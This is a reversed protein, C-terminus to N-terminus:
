HVMESPEEPKFENKNNTAISVVPTGALKIEADRVARDILVNLEDDTPEGALVLERTPRVMGEASDNVVPQKQNKIRM